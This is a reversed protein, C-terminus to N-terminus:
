PSYGHISKINEIKLSMRIVKKIFPYKGQLGLEGIDIPNSDFENILIYVPSNGGYNVIQNVWYEIESRNQVKEERGNYVIVYVCSEALFFRHATHPLIDQLIGYIPAYITM